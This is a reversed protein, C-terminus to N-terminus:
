LLNKCCWNCEARRFYCRAHRWHTTTAVVDLWLFADPASTESGYILQAFRQHGGGDDEEVEIDGQARGERTAGCRGQIRVEAHSGFELLREWDGDEEDTVTLECQALYVTQKTGSVM